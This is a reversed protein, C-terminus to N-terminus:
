KIMVDLLNTVTTRSGDDFQVDCAEDSCKIAIVGKRGVEKTEFCCHHYTVSKVSQNKTSSCAALFLFLFYKM